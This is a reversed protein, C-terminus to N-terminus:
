KWPKFWTTAQEPLLLGIFGNIIAYAIIILLFGTIARTIGTKATEYQEGDGYVGASTMRIGNYVIYFIAAMASFQIAVNIISIALDIADSLTCFGTDPVLKGDQEKVTGKCNVLQASAFIPVSLLAFAVIPAATKQIIGSKYMFVRAPM